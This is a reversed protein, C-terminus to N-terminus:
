AGQSKWGEATEKAFAAFPRPAHGLLRTLRALAGASAKLGHQQFHEFMLRLNFVMWDPLYQLSQQEWADLDQGAYRIERELTQSWIRAIDNGTLVDPGVLDYTEGAHDASLLTIAAAEAIDRVDVRSMGINGLPQPYIGAHLLADRSWYDNQFFHNPRLITFALGSGRLGHEIALKAGFQPLYPVRDVDHVSQYVVRAIGALKMGCIAQLGEQAETPSQANLLFVADSGGFVHRITKPDLLNGEVATAGAPLSNAKAPDRTLVSVEAGRATLERVVQSGVMGTGGTVLVRM